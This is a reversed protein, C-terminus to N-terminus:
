RDKGTQHTREIESWITSWTIHSMKKGFLKIQEAEAEKAIKRALSDAEALLPKTGKEDSLALARLKRGLDGLEAPLGTEPSWTQGFLGDCCFELTTGESGKTQDEGYRTLQLTNLWAEQLAKAFYEPIPTRHREVDKTTRIDPAFEQRRRRKVDETPRSDPVKTSSDVPKFRWIREKPTVHEIVWEKRGVERSGLPRAGNPDYGWLVVAYERDSSPTEIMWLSSLRGRGILSMFVAQRYSHIIDSPSLRDYPPIPELHNPNAQAGLTLIYLLVSSAIILTRRRTSM